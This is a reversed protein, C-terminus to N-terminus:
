RGARTRQGLRIALGMSLLLLGAGVVWRLDLGTFPLTSAKPAAATTPEAPTTATPKAAEKSPEVAKKPEVSTKPAPPAQKYGSTGNTSTGTSAQALAPGGSVILALAAPLALLERRALLRRGRRAVRRLSTQDISAAGATQSRSLAMEEIRMM